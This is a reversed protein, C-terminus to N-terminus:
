REMKDGEREKWRDRFTERGTGGDREMEVERM